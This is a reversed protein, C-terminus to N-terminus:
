KGTGRHRTTQMRILSEITTKLDLLAFVQRRYTYPGRVSLSFTM